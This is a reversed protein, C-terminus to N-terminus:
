RLSPEGLTSRSSLLSQPLPRPHRGLTQSLAASRLQLAEAAELELFDLALSAKMALSLDLFQGESTLLSVQLLRSSLRSFSEIRRRSSTALSHLEVLRYQAEFSATIFCVVSKYTLFTCLPM